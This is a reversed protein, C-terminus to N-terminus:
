RTGCISRSSIRETEPRSGAEDATVITRDHILTSAAM